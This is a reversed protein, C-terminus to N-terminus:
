KTAAPQGNRFEVTSVNGAADVSVQPGHRLGAVYTHELVRKGSAFKVYKGDYRDSKFEIEKIKNGQEDFYTWLGERHGNVYTGQSARVGNKHLGIAPGTLQESAPFGTASCVLTEGDSVVRQGSGCKLAAPTPRMPADVVPLKLDDAFAFGSLLVFPGCLIRITKMNPIELFQNL